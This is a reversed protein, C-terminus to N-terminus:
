FVLPKGHPGCFLKEGEARAKDSDVALKRLFARQSNPSKGIWQKIMENALAQEGLYRRSEQANRAQAEGGRAANTRNGADHKLKAVIPAKYNDRWVWDRWESGVKMIHVLNLETLPQKSDRVAILNQCLKGVHWAYWFDSFMQPEEGLNFDDPLNGVSSKGLVKLVHDCQGLRLEITGWFEKGPPGLAEQELGKWGSSGPHSVM